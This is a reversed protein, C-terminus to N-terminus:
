QDDFHSLIISQFDLFSCEKCQEFIAQTDINIDATPQQRAKDLKISLALAFFYERKLVDFNDLLQLSLRTPSSEALAADRMQADLRQLTAQASEAIRAAGTTPPPPPPSSSSSSSSSSSAIVEIPESPSPKALMPSTARGHTIGFNLPVFNNDNSRVAAVPENDVQQQRLLACEARLTDLQGNLDDCKQNALAFNRQWDNVLNRQVKADELADDLRQALQRNAAVLRANEADREDAVCQAQELKARLQRSQYRSSRIFEPVITAHQQDSSAIRKMTQLARKAASLQQILAARDWDLYNNKKDNDDDANVHDDDDDDDDLRNRPPELVDATNRRTENAVSTGHRKVFMSAPRNRRRHGRPQDVDALMREIHELVQESESMEDSQVGGRASSSSSNAVVVVNSIMVSQSRESRKSGSM